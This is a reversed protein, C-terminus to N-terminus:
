WPLGKDNIPVIDIKPVQPKPSIQHRQKIYYPTTDYFRHGYTEFYLMDYAVKINAIMHIRKPKKKILEHWTIKNNLLDILDNYLEM